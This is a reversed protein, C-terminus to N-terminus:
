SRTSLTVELSQLRQALNHETSPDSTFPPGGGPPGGGNEAGGGQQRGFTCHDQWVPSPVNLNFMGEGEGTGVGGRAVPCCLNSPPLPPLSTPCSGARTPPPPFHCLPLPVPLQSGWPPLLWSAPGSTLLAKLGRPHISWQGVPSSKVFCM